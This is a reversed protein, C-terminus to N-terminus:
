STISTYAVSHKRVRSADAKYDSQIEGLNRASLKRDTKNSNKMKMHINNVIPLPLALPHHGSAM